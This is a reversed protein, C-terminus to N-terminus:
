VLLERGARFRQGLHMILRHLRVQGGSELVSPWHNVGFGPLSARHHLIIWIDDFWSPLRNPFLFLCEIRLDIRRFRLEVTELHKGVWRAM